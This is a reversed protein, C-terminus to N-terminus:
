NQNTNDINNHSKCHPQHLRYLDVYHDPHFTPKQPKVGYIMAGSFMLGTTTAVGAIIKPNPM